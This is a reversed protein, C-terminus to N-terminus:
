ILSMMTFQRWCPFHISAALHYLAFDPSPRTQVHAPRFLPLNEGYSVNQATIYTTAVYYSWCSINVRASTLSPPDLPGVMNKRSYSALHGMAVFSETGDWQDIQCTRFKKVQFTLETHIYTHIYTHLYTYIYQCLLGIWKVPNNEPGKCLRLWTCFCTSFLYVEM